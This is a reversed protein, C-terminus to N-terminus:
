TTFYLLIYGGLALAAALAISGTSWTRAFVGEPGHFRYVANFGRKLFALLSELFRNWLIGIWEVAFRTLGPLFRRYVWDADLHVGPRAFLAPKWRVLFFFGLATFALVQIQEVVHSATYPVYDSPHPLADYLPGPFVGVLICVLAALGMALRMPPPSEQPRKGSDRGFFALYPVKLGTHLFAGASAAMLMFWVWTLHEEAAASVIMSKSVFGSTLPFASISAAGICCLVATVPMSRYLGGLETARATGTRFLIGGLAMFLLLMYVHAFAHSSVGNIALESGIGIGTVMIGLQSVLSYALVRRLDNELLAYVIPFVAMVAGIWILEPLGAFGRALCYIAMKTTFASLFVTGTPTGEPYADVLWGHLLPFAAKIGFAILILLAGQSGATLASSMNEFALSTSGTERSWLLIGMLLLVGSAVQIILYRMGALYSRETRSAWVLFVSTFATIEWYCFLTVLDGAFVAGIASGAYLLGSVQQGKERVHVSGLVCVIAFVHFVYAFILSLRDVRVPQLQYGFFVLDLTDGATLQVIQLASLLTLVLVAISRLRAGLLPVLLAGLILILGPPLDTM